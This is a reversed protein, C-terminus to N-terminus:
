PGSGARRSRRCRRRCPARARGARSWPRGRRGPRSSASRRGSRRRRTTRPCRRRARHEDVLELAVRHAAREWAVLRRGVVRDAVEREDAVGVRIEDRRRRGVRDRLEGRPDAVRHEGRREEGARGRAGDGRGHVVAHVGVRGGLRVQRRQALAPDQHDLGLGAREGRAALVADAAQGLRLPQEGLDLRHQRGRAPAPVAQPHQDGGAAGALRDVRHAEDAVARAAAHAEREGRGRGVPAGVDGQDGGVDAEGSGAAISVTRTSVVASSASATPLRKPSACTSSIAAAGASKRSPRGPPSSARARRRGGRLEAQLRGLVDEGPERGAAAVILGQDAEGGLGAGSAISRARAFSSRLATSAITKLSTERASIPKSESRLSTVTTSRAPSSWM